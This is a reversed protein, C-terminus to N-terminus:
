AMGAGGPSKSEFEALGSSRTLFPMYQRRGAAVSSGASTFAQCLNKERLHSALSRITGLRSGCIPFVCMKLFGKLRTDSVFKRLASQAPAPRPPEGGGSRAPMGGRSHIHVEILANQSTGVTLSGDSGCPSPVTPQNEEEQPDTDVPEVNSSENRIVHQLGADFLLDVGGTMGGVDKPKFPIRSPLGSYRRRVDKLGIDGTYRYGWSLLDKAV